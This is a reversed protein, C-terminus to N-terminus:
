YCRPEFEVDWPWPENIYAWPQRSKSTNRLPGYRREYLHELQMLREASNNHYILAEEDDPHTNLYLASELNAFQVQMIELLLEKQEYTMGDRNNMIDVMRIGEM